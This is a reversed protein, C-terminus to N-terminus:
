AINKAKIVRQNNYTLKEMRLKEIYLAKLRRYRSLLVVNGSYQKSIRHLDCLHMHLVRLENTFWRQKRGAQRCRKFTVACNFYYMFTKYFYSFRDCFDSGRHM